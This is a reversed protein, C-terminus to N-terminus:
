LLNSITFAHFLFLVQESPQQDSSQKAMERLQALQAELSDCSRCYTRDNMMYGFVKSSPFFPPVPVFEHIARTEERRLELQRKM